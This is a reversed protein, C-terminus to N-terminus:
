LVKCLVNVFVDRMSESAFNLDLSAMLATRSMRNM